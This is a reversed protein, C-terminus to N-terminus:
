NNAFISGFLTLLGFKVRLFLIVCCGCLITFCFVLMIIVIRRWRKPNALATVRKLVHCYFAQRIVNFVDIKEFIELFINKHQFCIYLTNSNLHGLIKSSIGAQSLTKWSKGHIKLDFTCKRSKKKCKHKKKQM